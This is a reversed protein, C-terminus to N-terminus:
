SETPKGNQRLLDVLEERTRKGSVLDQIWEYYPNDEPSPNDSFAITYNRVRIISLAFVLSTRKNGDEFIHDKALHGAIYSAQDFIASFMALPSQGFITCFSNSLVSEIRGHILAGRDGTLRTTYCKGFTLLCEHVNIVSSALAGIVEEDDFVLPDIPGSQGGRAVLTWREMDVLAGLM